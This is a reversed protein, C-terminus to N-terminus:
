QDLWRQFLQIKVHSGFINYLFPQQIGWFGVDLLLTGDDGDCTGSNLCISIDIM